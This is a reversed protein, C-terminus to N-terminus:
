AHVPSLRALWSRAMSEAATPLNERVGARLLDERARAVYGIVTGAPVTQFEAVLRLTVDRLADRTARRVEFAHM